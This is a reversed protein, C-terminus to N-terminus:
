SRSGPTEVASCRLCSSAYLDLMGSWGAPSAFTDHMAMADAGYAQLGRHELTVRTSEADVSTFWVEVETHLTPDFTWRSSLQWDLLLRGPPEWALVRGWDCEVGDKGREFWRGGARPELVVTACEAQGIKHSSMPWWTEMRATFVEFALALPARVHITKHVVMPEESPAKV